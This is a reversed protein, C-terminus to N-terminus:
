SEPPLDGSGFMRRSPDRGMGIGGASTDLNISVRAFSEGSVRLFQNMYVNMWPTAQAAWVKILNEETTGDYRSLRWDRYNASAGRKQIKWGCDGTGSYRIDYVDSFEDNTGDTRMLAITSESDVSTINSPRNMLEFISFVKATNEYVLNVGSAGWTRRYIKVDAASSGDSIYIDSGDFTQDATFGNDSDTYAVNSPLSSGGVLSYLEASGGADGAADVGDYYVRLRLKDGTALTIARAATTLTVPDGPSTVSDLIIESGYGSGTDIQYALKAITNTAGTSM